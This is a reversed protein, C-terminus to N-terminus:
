ENVYIQTCWVCAKDVHTYARGEEFEYGQESGAKM